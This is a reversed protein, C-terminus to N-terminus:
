VYKEGKTSVIMNNRYRTKKTHEDQNFMPLLSPNTSVVRYAYKQIIQKKIHPTLDNEHDPTTHHNQTQPPKPTPPLHLVVPTHQQLLPPSESEQRKTIIHIISEHDDGFFPSLSDYLEDEDLSRDKLINMVYDKICDDLHLNHKVFLTEVDM